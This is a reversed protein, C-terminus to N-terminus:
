LSKLREKVLEVIGDYDLKLLKSKIKKFCEGDEKPLRYETLVDMATLVSDYDMEDAFDRLAGYAETLTDQPIEPLDLDGEELPALFDMYARYRELLQETHSCIYERNGENGANELLRAQKSLDDDGIVRASSKLAHVKITYNKIDEARYYSEIEDANESITTYFSSLVTMYEETGGCNAVGKQPDLTKCSLLWEPLTVTEETEEEEQAGETRVVKKDPLYLLLMEELKQVDIPKTLYDNFGEELYKERAGSVANATLCITPTNMNPNEPLKRLEHFTEIGDMGPMMHDLFIMDYKLSGALKLGDEGGSATDIRIKTRKLLNKFVELNTLTDDVMLVRADPATFKEKYKKQSAVSVRYSTEYDGLPIRRVVKQKLKFGFASGKGYESEVELASGMMELLQKTISMGLGTGEITRNRDEEIRDFKSYLKEMDEPKIGIGTDRIVVNLSISDPDGPIPERELRFTITGTETYKVANTLINTIIQKIRIEDGFLIKPCEPDFELKLKLGKKDARSQVMNVLDNLVSSLDYEVPIIEIKGAEIKSFDLINNILGLLTNGATRVTEAYETIRPESSERLIMENM